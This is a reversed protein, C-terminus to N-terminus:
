QQPPPDADVDASQEQLQRELEQVRAEASLARHTMAALEAAYAKVLSEM